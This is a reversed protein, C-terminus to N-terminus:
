PVVVVLGGRVSREGEQLLESEGFVEDRSMSIVSPAVISVLAADVRTTDGMFMERSPRLCVASGDLIKWRASLM